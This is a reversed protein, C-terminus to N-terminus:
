TTKLFSCFVGSTFALVSVLSCAHGQRNLEQVALKLAWIKKGTKRKVEHIEWVYTARSTYSRCYAYRTSLPTLNGWTTIGCRNPISHQTHIETGELQICQFSAKLYQIVVEGMQQSGPHSVVMLDRPQDGAGPPQRTAYCPRSSHLYQLAGTGKQLVPEVASLVPLGKNAQSSSRSPDGWCFAPSSCGARCLLDLPMSLSWTLIEWASVWLNVMEVKTTGWSCCRRSLWMVWISVASLAPCRFTKFSRPKLGAASLLPFKRSSLWAHSSRPPPSWTSFVVWGRCM